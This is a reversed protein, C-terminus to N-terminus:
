DAPYRRSDIGAPIPRGDILWDALTEAASPILLAGRSGFGNFVLLPPLRPHPGVLPQKDATGPRIGAAQAVVQMDDCQILHAARDLLLAKAPETPVEDLHDRDYTAGLKISGDQRPVWWVGGNVLQQPHAPDANLTLIEGKAPQLPLRYFWPNSTVHYGECFIVRRAAIGHWRVGDSEVQLQDHVFEAQYWCGRRRWQEALADLLPATDLYGTQRQWVGGLPAIVGEPAGDQDFNEGLYPQYRPDAHRRKCYDAEAATTFVRAMDLPFFFSRGFQQELEAYRSLALALQDELGEPLQLRRGSLPNILGAAARSTSGPAAHDVVAISLGRRDLTWALLAGALGHGVILCDLPQSQPM